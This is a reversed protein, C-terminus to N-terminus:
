GGVPGIVSQTVGSALPGATGAGARGAPIMGDSGGPIKLRVRTHQFYGSAPTFVATDGEVQWRGAIHPWLTPMLTGAAALAPQRKRFWGSRPM